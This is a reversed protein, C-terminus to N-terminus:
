MIVMKFGEETAVLHPLNGQLGSEKDKSTFDILLRMDFLNDYTVNKLEKNFKFGKGNYKETMSLLVVNNDIVDILSTKVGKKTVKTTINFLHKDNEQNFIKHTAAISEKSKALIEKEFNSLLKNLPSTTM